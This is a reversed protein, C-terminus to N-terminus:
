DYCKSLYEACAAHLFVAGVASQTADYNQALLSAIFGTLTDGSGAKALGANGITNFYVKGKPCFIQTISGKLVVVCNYKAAVERATTFQLFDDNASVGFLREFEKPHPTIVANSILKIDEKDGMSLLNLADADIVKGRQFNLKLLKKLVKLTKSEQGLGPGIALVNQSTLKPEVTILDKNKDSLVLSEPVANHIIDAGGEPINATLLGAGSEIVAKASLVAAGFMGRSGAVLLVHGYNYKHTFPERKKYFENILEPEITTYETVLASTYEKDLGIDIVECSGLYQIGTKLFFSPKPFQFTFTKTARIIAANKPSFGSEPDAPLGSPIDISFVKANSENIAVILKAVFGTVPKKIGIGFIADVIWGGPFINPIDEESRIMRIDIGNRNLQQFNAEFDPSFTEKFCVVNLKVTYGSEILKRAIVLGDGGNNGVGAFVSIFATKKNFPEVSLSSLSEILKDYCNTAAREM